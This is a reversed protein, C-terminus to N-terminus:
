PRVPELASAAGVVSVIGDGSGGGYTYGYSGRKLDNALTIPASGGHLRARYVQTAELVRMVYDRTETFPICEIFDLPDTSSSRPDGCMGAWQTPRGPGANYAAAAMVYSGSFQAVLQGLYTSGVKMNYDADELSGYGYGARRAVIAATAPMLQMMGRAGAGSRANPDFGSEQRTIGLVLSPEPADAALPTTHLPYGREPLIFGHKAANRVVKMALEQDAVSQALDVLMAEDSATAATESMSAIFPKLTDKAGLSAILRAARVPERAEFRMRDSTSISPDRGLVMTAAGGRSAALQGYFTTYFKAAQGFYLQAALPDGEAEAARGRWYLARSQTLPSQGIAQLRAFHEDARRPDKLRTLAIWGALFQADAADAGATMGTHAAAAYAGASDGARLLAGAIGGHKWLRDGAAPNVIADPLYGVLATAGSADGHDRLSIVREYALGPSTQAAPPLASILASATPDNRRVAMRAQAIAQQDPSLLRLLDRAATGHAGYLLFDERAAYDAASLMEGFRSLIMEQTDEDFVLNRWAKRIVDGAAARQGDSRLAGALAMAGQATAPEDHGFWAIIERSSLGSRDLLKEAAIQRRIARPWDALDRRASDAETWTMSDPAADAIAWLAIKRWLPDAMTAMVAHVRAGDGSKAAALASVVSNPDNVIVPAVPSYAPQPADSSLTQGTALGGTFMLATLAVSSRKLHMLTNLSM